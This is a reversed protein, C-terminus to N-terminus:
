QAATVRGGGAPRSADSPCDLQAPLQSSATHARHDIYVLLEKLRRQDASAAERPAPARASNHQHMCAASYSRARPQPTCAGQEAARGFLGGLEQLRCCGPRPRLRLKKCPTVWVCTDPSLVLGGPRGGAALAPPRARVRLTQVGHLLRMRVEGKGGGGGAPRHRRRPAFAGPHVVQGRKDLGQRGREGRQVFVYVNKSGGPM